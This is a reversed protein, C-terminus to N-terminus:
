EEILIVANGSGTETLTGGTALWGQIMNGNGSCTVASGFKVDRFTQYSGSLTAAGTTLQCARGRGMTYIDSRNLLLAAASAVHTSLVLISGGAPCEAYAQAYDSHTASGTIVQAASGVIADFGFLARANAPNLGANKASQEQEQQVVVGPSVEKYSPM